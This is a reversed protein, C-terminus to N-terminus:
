THLQNMFARLRRSGSMILFSPLSGPWKVMLRLDVNVLGFPAVVGVAVLQEVFEYRLVIDDERCVAVVAM